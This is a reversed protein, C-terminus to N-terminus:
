MYAAFNKKGGTESWPISEYVSIPTKKVLGAQGVNLPPLQTSKAERFAILSKQCPRKKHSVYILPFVSTLLRNRRFLWCNINLLQIKIQVFYHWISHEMERVNIFVLTIM